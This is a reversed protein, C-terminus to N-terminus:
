KESPKSGPVIVSAIRFLCKGDFYSLDRATSKQNEVMMQYRDKDILLGNIMPVYKDKEKVIVIGKYDNFISYGLNSFDFIVVPIGCIVAWEVTSSYPATFIDSCVVIDFLPEDAVHISYRSIIEGYLSKKMRPHLSVLVNAEISSCLNMLSDLEDQATAIDTLKEEFLQM